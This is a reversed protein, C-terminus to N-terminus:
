EASLLIAASHLIGLDARALDKIELIYDGAEETSLEALDDQSALDQGFVGRVDDRSGGKRSQLVKKKGSPSTLTLVLDGRFSHSLDIKVAVKRGAVAQDVPIKVSIGIAQNDPIALEPEVSFEINLLPPPPAEGPLHEVFASVKTVDEGRCGENTCVNSVRCGGRTVFDTEGRVLIGVLDGSRTDFVGSGSNGGYTDLNAVFYGNRSADRVKAGGAIKTPLGAPHGIVFIEDGNRVAEDRAVPMAERDTVARDIRILAYDAGSSVEERAVIEVCSFVQEKKVSNPYQGAAVVAYDFVFRTSNCSSQNRICHGATLILNPGVLTGSCFAHNPQDRYPETACLNYSQGFSKAPLNFIEGQARLDSSSMLAVTSRAITVDRASTSEFIDRRDDDGYIVSPSVFGEPDTALKQEQAPQSCAAMVVLGVSLLGVMFGQVPGFERKMM